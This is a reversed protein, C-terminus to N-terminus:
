ALVIVPLTLCHDSSRVATDVSTQLIEVDITM